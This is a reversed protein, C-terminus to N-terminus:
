VANKGCAAKGDPMKDHVNHLYCHGEMACDWWGYPLGSQFMAAATRESTSCSKGRDLQNRFSSFYERLADM